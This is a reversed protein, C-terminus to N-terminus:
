ALVPRCDQAMAMPGIFRSGAAFGTVYLATDQHLWKPQGGHQWCMWLGLVGIQRGAPRYKRFRLGQRDCVLTTPQGVPTLWYRLRGDFLGEPEDETATNLKVHSDLCYWEGVKPIGALSHDFAVRVGTETKGAQLSWIYAYGYIDRYGALYIPNHKMDHFPDAVNAARYLTNYGGRVSWGGEGNADLGGNGRYPPDLADDILTRYPDRTAGRQYTADWGPMKGGDPAFDSKDRSWMFYYRFYMEDPDDYTPDGPRFDLARKWWRINAASQLLTASAGMAYSKIGPRLPYYSPDWEHADGVVIFRGPARRAYDALIEPTSGGWGRSLLPALTSGEPIDQFSEAMWIGPDTALRDDKLYQVAVGVEGPAPQRSESLDVRFVRLVGVGDRDYSTLILEARAAPPYLARTHDFGIVVHNIGSGVTYALKAGQPTGTSQPIAADAEVPHEYMTGDAFTLRMKPRVAPDLAESAHLKIIRTSRLLLGHNPIAGTVWGNWLATVDLTYTLVTASDPGSPCEAYPTPGQPVGDRDRWDGGAHKWALAYPSNFSGRELGGTASAYPRLVSLPVM